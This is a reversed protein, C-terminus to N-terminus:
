WSLYIRHAHKIRFGNVRYAKVYVFSVANVFQLLCPERKHYLLLFSLAFYRANLKYAVLSASYHLLTRVCCCASFINWSNGMCFIQVARPYAFPEYKLTTMGGRYISLILFFRKELECTRKSTNERSPIGFTKSRAFASVVYTSCLNPATIKPFCISSTLM